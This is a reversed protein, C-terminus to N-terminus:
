LAGGNTAQVFYAPGDGAAHRIREVHEERMAPLADLPYYRVELSEDDAVHPEGAVVRCRFATAIYQSQNGDAYTIVRSLYVGTIREPVVHLGTEELVERVVAAAPQEGPEMIGAIVAWQGNDSRRELLIEGAENFVLAVVAPFLILDPGTKRRLDQLYRSMPM